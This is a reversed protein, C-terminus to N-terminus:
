VEKDGNKIYGMASEFNRYGHDDFMEWKHDGRDVHIVGDGELRIAVAVGHHLFSIFYCRINNQIDSQLGLKYERKNPWSPYFHSTILYIIKSLDYIFDDDLKITQLTDM